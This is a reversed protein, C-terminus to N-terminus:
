IGKGFLETSIKQIILLVEDIRPKFIKKLHKLMIKGEATITYIRKTRKSPHEWKGKIFGDKELKHLLPYLINPNLKHQFNKAESKHAFDKMKSEMKEVLGHMREAVKNGCMAEKSIVHLVLLRVMPMKLIMNKLHKEPIEPPKFM